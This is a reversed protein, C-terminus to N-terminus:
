ATEFQHMRLDVERYYKERVISQAIRLIKEGSHNVIRGAALVLEFRLTKLSEFSMIATRSTTAKRPQAINMDIQFNRVLNYAIVSLNQHASNGQYDKTPIADFGFEGKLEAINKEMACRGNYFDLLNKAGLDRNSLLVQHEYIGDDPTFFDLQHGGKSPKDAIKERFFTMPVTLNWQEIPLELKFWELKSNGREWQEQCVM